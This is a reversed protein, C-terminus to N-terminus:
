PSKGIGQIVSSLWLVSAGPAIHYAFSGGTASVAVYNGNLYVADLTTPPTTDTAPVTTSSFLQCETFGMTVCLFLPSLLM